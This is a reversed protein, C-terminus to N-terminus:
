RGLGLGKFWGGRSVKEPDPSLEDAWSLLARAVVDRPAHKLIPLGHNIAYAVAAYSNAIERAQNFNLAARVDAPTIDGGKEVRNIVLQLKDQPYGLERLLSLLRRGDHLFPLSTQSVLYVTQAEDLARLTVNDPVRGVDLVVFDFRQRAMAIIRGVTEARIGVAADPSEPSALLWLQPGVRLMVSELLAADLRHEQSALDAMTATVPQDSLFIAADGLHLNLDILAVRKDKRSLADALSTALFTSGSGGKTPMFALVAGGHRDPLRGGRMREVQRLLATKFEGNKLPTTLVERIGARMAGLLMEPSREPTLLIMATQPNSSLAFEIRNLADADVASLEAVILDPAEKKLAACTDDLGGVSARLEVQRPLDKIDHVIPASASESSAIVSVKLSM